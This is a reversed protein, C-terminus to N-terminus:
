GTLKAVEIARATDREAYIQTTDAKSHGLVVQAAELGHAKRIESARLHRLQNPHWPSVDAKLCAQEVAHHLSTPLYAKRPLRKANKKKRNVQSPQVKTKRKARMEAFRETRDRDPDFLFAQPDAVYGDLVVVKKSTDCLLEADVPRHASVYSQAVLRREHDSEPSFAIEPAPMRGKLFELIARQANPGVPIVRRKGHHRTKHDSPTYQWVDGSMDLECLKLSCAEGPRCGTWRM